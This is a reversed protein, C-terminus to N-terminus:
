FEATHKFVDDMNVVFRFTQVAFYSNVRQYDDVCDPFVDGSESNTNGNTGKGVRSINRSYRSVRPRTRAHTYHTHKRTTGSATDVM